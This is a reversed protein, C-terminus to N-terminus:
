GSERTSRDKVTIVKGPCLMGQMVRPPHRAWSDGVAPSSEPRLSPWGTRWSRTGARCNVAARDLTTGPSAMGQALLRPAEARVAMAPPPRRPLIHAGACAGDGGRRGPDMGAARLARPASWDTRRLPQGLHPRYHGGCRGRQDCDLRQTAARRAGDLTRCWSPIWKGPFRMARTRRQGRCPRRCRRGRRKRACRGCARPAPGTAQEAVLMPAGILFVLILGALTGAEVRDIRRRLPNRDWGFMRSRRIRQIM